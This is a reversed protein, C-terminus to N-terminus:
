YTAGAPVIASPKHEDTRPTRRQLFATIHAQTEADCVSPCSTFPDNDAFFDALTMRVSEMTMKVSM